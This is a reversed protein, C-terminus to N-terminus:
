YYSFTGGLAEVPASPRLRAGRSARPVRFRFNAPKVVMIDCSLDDLIREATNGILLRKIGSRSMAGMVVIASHSKDVAETIANVPERALLYQRSRAIRVPRLSRSFRAKAAREATKQLDELTGPVLAAEPPVHV